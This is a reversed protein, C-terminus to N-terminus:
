HCGLMKKKKIILHSSVHSFFNLFVDNEATRFLGGHIRLSELLQLLLHANLIYSKLWQFCKSEVVVIGIAMLTLLTAVGMFECSWKIMHEELIVHCILVM